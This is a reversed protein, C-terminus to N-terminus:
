NGGKRAPSLCPMSACEFLPGNLTYKVGSRELIYTPVRNFAVRTILDGECLKLQM